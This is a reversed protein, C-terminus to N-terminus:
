FLETVWFTVDGSAGATSSWNIQQIISNAPNDLSLFADAGFGVGDTPNITIANVLGSIGGVSTTGVVTDYVGGSTAPLVVAENTGNYISLFRKRANRTFYSGDLYGNIDTYSIQAIQRPIPV